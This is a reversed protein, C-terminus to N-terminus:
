IEEQMLSSLLAALTAVKKEQPLDKLSTEIEKITNIVDKDNNQKAAVFSEFKKHKGKSNTAYLVIPNLGLKGKEKVNAFAEIRQFHQCLVPLKDFADGINKDTWNKEAAGTALSIVSEIKAKGDIIKILRSALETINPAQASQAVVKCRAKLEDDFEANLTNKLIQEFGSILMSHQTTLEDLSSKLHHALKKDNAKISTDLNFITPLKTLILSYPDNAKIVADRFTKTTTTLNKASNEDILIEGSTKKVWTPLTHVIKVIHKAISLIKDNTKVDISASKVLTDILHSQIDSIHFYRVAAESPRKYIKEVLEEDLEPIYIFEKTSDQDYYAVQGDLSKLLALGYIRCLGITLGYPPSMWRKYLTDLVVMEDSDKIFDTGDKWLEYIEPNAAIATKSWQRPFLFGESTKQHWGKSKLCSLYIAKEPPFSNKDFGLDEEEGHELMATMLKRIGSNASGSPKSRNVLENLVTPSKSYIKDAINSAHVALPNKALKKGEHHWDANSFTKALENDLIQQTLLIRNQLENKAILDHNIKENDKEIQTLAILEIASTKLLELSQPAGIVVYPNSKLVASIKDKPTTSLVFHLFKDGSIPPADLSNLDETPISKINKTLLTGAWRMTGKVHYHRTALINQSYQCIEAWDTGESIADIRELVLNNIDIDSGQFIFYADHNQRFIVITWKELEAIAALIENKSFGRASFYSVLFKNKAHLQHHFGFITLLAITKTISIHLNSGKQEARYIADCGELWPKSDSSTTILHHLNHHLYDWLQEPQYLETTQKSDNYNTALFERFGLKEHSALFGFLSRENQSFRRRSIPGLLLSTLPDLPLTKLLAASNMAQQPFCAIISAVLKKHKKELKTEIDTQKSISDGVLILSEDISPNFGIDRYRGQVKGWEKQTSADKNKAYDSFSQHLFGIILVDSKAQQATDALSQFLHLDKNARSQYDLAKGMEDLLLLTGDYKENSREIANEIQTLCEDDELKNIKKADFSEELSSLVSMLISPAPAELGCVHTIVKWGKKKLSFRKPFDSFNSDAKTLKTQAYAREAKNESLLSALYLASTSKGSGYPGTITYARQSSGSFDRSLTDLTNLATGHLIYDDVFAKFASRDADIRTSSKYRPSITIPFDAM